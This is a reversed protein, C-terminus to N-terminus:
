RVSESIPLADMRMRWVACVIGIAACGLGSLFLAASLWPFDLVALNNFITGWRSSCAVMSSLPYYTENPMSEGCGSFFMAQVAMAAPLFVIPYCILMSIPLRLTRAALAGAIGFGVLPALVPAFAHIYWGSAGVEGISIIVLSHYSLSALFAIATLLPIQDALQLKRKRVFLFYGAAIVIAAAALPIILIRPPLVFSWTGGWLFPIAIIWPIKGLAVPSANKLLGHIMGGEENMRAVENSGIVSGTEIFKQMYWWGCIATMIALLLLFGRASRWVRDGDRPTRLTAFALVGIVVAAFPLFTAKTLLGLGLLSGVATYRSGSGEGSILSRAAPWACAALLVVLSDNGIRAMDPFWMPFLFPWLAVALTVAAHADPGGRTARLAMMATVCLAAWAMLYSVGRMFLLQDALSWTKSVLYAPTMVLYYLPPHQAEWNIAQGPSWSRARLPNSHIAARGAEIVQSPAAFFKAYTWAPRLLNTTPATKLYVDVEASVRDRSRPWRGTEALQQIYSYHTTEDFGEWPPLMAIQAFGILLSALLLLTAITRLQGNHEPVDSAQPM